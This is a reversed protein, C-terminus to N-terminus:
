WPVRNEQTGSQNRNEKSRVHEKIKFNTPFKNSMLLYYLGKSKSIMTYSVKEYLFNIRFYRSYPVVEIVRIERGYFHSIKEEVGNWNSFHLGTEEEIKTLLNKSDCHKLWGFYAHMRIELSEKSIKNTKYKNILRFIRYKISKRLLTHTHYFKYGVFDIGRVDVPFIQYNNKLELNVEHHFYMKILILVTRLFEKSNSLITIDDAYRFYYKVKVEEKMWHDFYALTLNAFFQSLYNGIPVGDTSDIIEDLVILLEEDKIKKRLIRKLVDHDISPYFKKVDLKLCYVTGEPDNKLVKKLDKVLKHIGRNKICSYTNEIFINVWIPEMINMIAHHAIRDPFYPLRYIIRKKPEYIEFTSYESTKYILNTLSELLRVNDADKHRDHKKIGWNNSKHKRANEDAIEINDLTCIRRHLDKLRKAMYTRTFDM